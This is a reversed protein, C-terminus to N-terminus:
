DNNQIIINYIENEYTFNVECFGYRCFNNIFIERLEEGQKTVPLVWITPHYFNELSVFNKVFLNVKSFLDKPFVNCILYEYQEFFLNEERTQEIQNKLQTIKM